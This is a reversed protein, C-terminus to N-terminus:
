PRARKAPANETETIELVQDNRTATELRDQLIQDLTRSHLFQVEDSAASANACNATPLRAKAKLARLKLKM